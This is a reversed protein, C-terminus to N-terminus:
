KKTTYNIEFSKRLGKRQLVKELDDVFEQNRWYKEKEIDLDKVTGPLLSQMIRIFGEVNDNTLRGLTMFYRGALTNIFHIKYPNATYVIKKTKPNVYSSVEMWERLGPINKVFPYTYTNDEIQNNFYLNYGTAVEVPYKLLPSFESLLRSLTKSFNGKWLKNVDEVPLGINYLYRTLGDKEKIRIPFTDKMYSPLLKSEEKEEQTEATLNTIKGLAAYKGPQKVIHELQLPINGRSWRYFPMARRMVEREFFTLGEPSYDFHYKMVVKAAEQFSDGEALRYAFLPYRIRDEVFGMMRRPFNKGKGNIADDVTQLVDMYGPQGGIGLNEGQKVIEKYDIKKGLKTTLTGEKGKVINEGVIYWRPNKLGALWNNFIGGIFNRSHFQPFWGTVSGKWFNLLTDYMRLFANTSEDSSLFKTVENIHKAIPLPVLVGKLNKVGTEVYPIGNIIKKTVGVEAPFGFYQRVNRFWDFMEVAKIHEASRVALAKFANPEFFNKVGYTDKMYKNIQAITGEMSRAKAFPTKVRLPKSYEALTKSLKTADIAGTELFTAGEKTLHHKLYNPLQTRILGRTKEAKLMREQGRAIWDVIDDVAQTGSTMKFGNGLRGEVLKAIEAGTKEGTIKQMYGLAKSAQQGMRGILETTKGIRNRATKQMKLFSDIYDQGRPIDQIESFPVLAKKTLDGIKKVTPINKIADPVVKTPLKALEQGMFRVASSKLYKEPYKVAVNAVMKRATDEGYQTVAKKLLNTGAKNLTRAGVKTAIKLGGGVGFTLYTTPDLLVDTALAGWFNNVGIVSSPSIKQKIGEIAGKGSLLGGIAYSGTNLLDLSKMLLSSDINPNVTPLVVNEKTAIKQLDEPMVIKSNKKQTTTTKSTVYQLAEAGTM